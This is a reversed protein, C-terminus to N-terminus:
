MDMSAFMRWRYCFQHTLEFPFFCNDSSLTRGNVSISANHERLVRRKLRPKAVEYTLSELEEGEQWLLTLALVDRVTKHWYM